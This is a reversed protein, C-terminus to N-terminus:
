KGTAVKLFQSAELLADLEAKMEKQSDLIKDLKADVEERSLGTDATKTGDNAGQNAGAPVKLIIDEALLHHLSIPGAALFIGFGLGILMSFLDFRKM